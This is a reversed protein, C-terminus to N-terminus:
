SVFDAYAGVCGSRWSYDAGCWSDARMGVVDLARKIRRAIKADSWHSAVVITRSRIWCCNASWGFGDNQLDTCEAQIISIPTCDPSVHVIPSLM